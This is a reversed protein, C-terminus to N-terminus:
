LGTTSCVSCRDIWGSVQSSSGSISSSRWKFFSNEELRSLALWVESVSYWLRPSLPYGAKNINALVPFHVHKLQLVSIRDPRHSVDESTNLTCLMGLLSVM